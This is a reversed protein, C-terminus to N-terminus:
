EDWTGIWVAAHMGAPGGESGVAVFTAGFTAVANIGTTGGQSADAFRPNGHQVTAWSAGDDASGWVRAGYPGGGAAVWGETAFAVGTPVSLGLGPAVSRHWQLGDASIWIEGNVGSGLALLTGTEADAVVRYFGVAPGEVDTFDLADDGLRQWSLGDESVWAAPRTCDFCGAVKATGVAVLGPGGATVGTMDLHYGDDAGAILSADEVRAWSTGRDDSVWVVANEHPGPAVEWGVAVLRSGLATIVEVAVKQSARGSPCFEELAQSVLTWTLGDASMGATPDGSQGLCGDVTGDLDSGREFGLAVLGDPGQAVVGVGTGAVREWTLGDFSAWVAAEYSLNPWPTAEVYGFAVLGPGGALVGIMNGNDFAAQNPVRQWTMSLAAPPPVSTTTSPSTTATTSTTPGSTSTVMTTTTAPAVPPTPAETIWHVAWVVGGIAVMTVLAAAAAVALPRSKWWSPRPQEAARARGQAVPWLDPAELRDLSRLRRVLDSVM